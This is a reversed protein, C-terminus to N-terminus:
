ERRRRWEGRDHQRFGAAVLSAEMLIKVLAFYETLEPPKALQQKLATCREIRKQREGRQLTEELEALDGSGVYESM